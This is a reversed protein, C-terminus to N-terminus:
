IAPNAKLILKGESQIVVSAQVDFVNIWALYKGRTAIDTASFEFDIYNSGEAVNGTIEAYGGADRGWAYMFSASNFASFSVEEGNNFIYCRLSPTSGATSEFLFPKSQEQTDIYLTKTAM